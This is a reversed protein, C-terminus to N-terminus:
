IITSCEGFHTALPGFITCPRTAASQFRGAPGSAAAPEWLALSLPLNSLSPSLSILFPPLSLNSLSPPLSLGMRKLTQACFFVCCFVCFVCFSAFFVLFVRLFCWFFACFICVCFFAEGGRSTRARARWHTHKLQRHSLAHARAHSRAHARRARAHTQTHTHTHTQTHKHTHTHTHTHTHRLAEQPRDERMALMCRESM